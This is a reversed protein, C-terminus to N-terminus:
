FIANCLNKVILMIFFINSVVGKWHNRQEEHIFSVISESTIVQLQTYLNCFIIIVKCFIFSVKELIEREVQIGNQIMTLRNHCIYTISKVKTTNLLLFM